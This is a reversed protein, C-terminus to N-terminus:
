AAPKKTPSSEWKMDYLRRSISRGPVVPATGEQPGEPWIQRRELTRARALQERRVLISGGGGCSDFPVEHRQYSTVPYGLQAGQSITPLYGVQGKARLVGM